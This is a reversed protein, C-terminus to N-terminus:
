INADRGGLQPLHERYRDDEDGAVMARARLQGARRAPGANMQVERNAEIERKCYECFLGTM